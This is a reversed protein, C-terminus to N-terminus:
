VFIEIVDLSASLIIGLIECIYESGNESEEWIAVKRKHKLLNYLQM